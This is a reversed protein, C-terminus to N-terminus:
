PIDLTNRLVRGTLELNGNEDIKFQITGEPDKIIVEGINANNSVTQKGETFTGRLKIRGFRKAVGVIFGQNGQFTATRSASSDLLDQPENIHVAQLLALNGDSLFQAQAHGDDRLLTFKPQNLDVDVTRLRVPNVGSKGDNPISGLMFLLGQDAILARPQNPTNDFIDSTSLAAYTVVGLDVSLKYLERNNSSGNVEAIGFLEGAMEVGEVLLDGSFDTVDSQDLSIGQEQIKFMRKGTGTDATFFMMDDLAFFDRPRGNASGPNLDKLPTPNSVSILVANEDLAYLEFGSSGDTAEFFVFDDHGITAPDDLVSFGAVQNLPRGDRTLPPNSFQIVDNDIDIWTVSAAGGAPNTLLFVERGPKTPPNPAFLQTGQIRADFILIEGHLQSDFMTLHEPNSSEFLKSNIDFLTATGNTDLRWLERGTNTDSQASFFLYDDVVTLEEPSSSAGGQAIDTVRVTGLTTGDTKWVERGNSPDSAVFYLEGDFDVFHTPDSWGIGPHIDKVLELEGFPALARWLEFGEGGPRSASFYVDGGYEFFFEGTPQPPIQPLTPEFNNLHYVDELSVTDTQKGNSLYGVGNDDKFM